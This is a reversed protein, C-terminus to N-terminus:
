RRKKPAKKESENEISEYESALIGHKRNQQLLNLIMLRSYTYDNRNLKPVELEAPVVLQSPAVASVAGLALKVKNHSSM